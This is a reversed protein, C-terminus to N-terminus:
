ALALLVLTANHVGRSGQTRAIEGYTYFGGVPVDPILRAITAVEDQIGEEGLVVKRAVCDFAVVGRPQQGDVADLVQECATETGSMVSGADGAMMWLLTGEPVDACVLARAELDIGLVARIEEGGPRALGLPHLVAFPQWAMPDTFLEPPAGLRRQYADLAPEGDLSLVLSGDSATVSMPEGIRKWGHGIGIAIPADSGIGVAVVAGSLVRDGQFQFTQEMVLDDGACGGVLQVAAGAVSYAGRVVESRQGALGESLLILARHPREIGDLAAAVAVGAERAGDALAGVATQM